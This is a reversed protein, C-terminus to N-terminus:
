PANRRLHDIHWSSACADDEDVVVASVTVGEKIGVVGGREVVDSWVFTVARM